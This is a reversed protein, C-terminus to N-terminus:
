DLAYLVAWSGVIFLAYILVLKFLVPHLYRKFALAALGAGFGLALGMFIVLDAYIYCMADGDPGCGGLASYVAWAHVVGAIVLAIAWQKQDEDYKKPREPPKIPPLHQM